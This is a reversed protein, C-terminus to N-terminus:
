ASAGTQPGPTFADVLLGYKGGRVKAEFPGSAAEFRVSALESALPIRWRTSGHVEYEKGEVTLRGGGEIRLYAGLFNGCASQLIQFAAQADLKCLAGVAALPVPEDAVVEVLAPNPGHSQGAALELLQERRSLWRLAGAAVLTDPWLNDPWVQRAMALALNEQLKRYRESIPITWPRAAGNFLYDWVSDADETGLKGPGLRRLSGPSGLTTGFFLSTSAWAKGPSSSAVLTDRAGIDLYLLRRGYAESIFRSAVLVATPASILSTNGTEVISEIGASARLVREEYVRLVYNGLISLDTGGPETWDVDVMDVSSGEPLQGQFPASLGRPGVLALAPMARDPSSIERRAIARSLISPWLAGPTTRQLSAAGVVILDTNSLQDATSRPPRDGVLSVVSSPVIRACKELLRAMSPTEALVAVRLIGGAGMVLAHADIARFRRDELIKIGTFAELCAVADRLGVSADKEPHWLTSPAAAASVFRWKPGSKAFLYCRTFANGVISM